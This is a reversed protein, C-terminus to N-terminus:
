SMPRNNGVLRSRDRLGVFRPANDAIEAAIKPQFDNAQRCARRLEDFWNVVTIM